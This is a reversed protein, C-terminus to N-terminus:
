SWCGIVRLNVRFGIQGMLGKPLRRTPVKTKSTGESAPQAGGAAAPPQSGAPQASPQPAPISGRAAGELDGMITTFRRLEAEFASEENIALSHCLNSLIRQILSQDNRNPGGASTVRKRKANARSKSLSHM